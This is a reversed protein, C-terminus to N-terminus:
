AALAEAFAPGEAAKAARWLAVSEAHDADIEAVGLTLDALPIDTM